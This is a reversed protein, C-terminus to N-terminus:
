SKGAAGRIAAVARDISPAALPRGVLREAAWHDRAGIAEVRQSPHPHARPGDIEFGLSHLAYWLRRDVLKLFAFQAPALVGGKLRAANLSSMLGPTTFFHAEMTELVASAVNMEGLWRDAAAVVHAPFALAEDPGARGERKSTGLSESMEGLLALAEGRRRAGHLAIAALICRVHPRARELGLWAEGLQRTLEIRADGENFAGDQGTAWVAIWEQAGLAADAPRPEGKRLPSLALRRGVFAAISRFAKAQETMLGELDLARTFRAPAARRFCVAALLLVLGMAPVLFFRGIERLLHVLQAFTVLDPNAALVQADARDFRDTFQHIFRMQCHAFGMAVGSIEGHHFYWAAWALAALGAMIVILYFGTYEDRGRSM